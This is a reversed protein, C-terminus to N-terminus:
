EDESWCRHNLASLCAVSCATVEDCGDGHKERLECCVPMHQECCYMRKECGECPVAHTAGHLIPEDCLVLIGDGKKDERDKSYVVTEGDVYYIRGGADKKWAERSSRACKEPAFPAGNCGFDCM